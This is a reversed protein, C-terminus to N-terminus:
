CREGKFPRHCIDLLLIRVACLSIEIRGDVMAHPPRHARVANHWAGLVPCRSSSTRCVCSSLEWPDQVGRFRLMRYRYAVRLYACERAISREAFCPNYFGFCFISPLFLALSFCCSRIQGPRRGLECAAVMGNAGYAGVRVCCVPGM